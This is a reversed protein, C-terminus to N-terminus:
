GEGADTTEECRVGRACPSSLLERGRRWKRAKRRIKIEYLVIQLKYTLYHRLLAPILPLFNHPSRTPIRLLHRSRTFACTCTCTCTCTSISISISISMCM